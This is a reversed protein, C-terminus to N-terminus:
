KTYQFGMPKDEDSKYVLNEKDLHKLSENTITTLVKINSVGLEETYLAHATIIKDFLKDIFRGNGFNKVNSFSSIIEKVEEKAEKTIKFKSKEVKLMFINFLEEVNYDKFDIFYRIRSKLGSNTEILDKMEKSYGAFIFITDNKEMEKVIEGIAEPGFEQARSALLYAEDVFITGGRVAEIVAKTKIGTQGIYGAILDSATVEKYKNNETYGLTYLLNAIIRAVTTKGTGPNGTYCMHLMPKDLELKGKVKNMFALRAALKKVEEKINAIGILSNLENLIETKDKKELHDVTINGVILPDIYPHDYEDDFDNDIGRNIIVSENEEKEYISFLKDNYIDFFKDIADFDQNDFALKLKNLDTDSITTYMEDENDDYYVFFDYFWNEDAMEKLTYIDAHITRLTNTKEDYSGLVMNMYMSKDYYEIADKKTKCKHLTKLSEISMPYGYCLEESSALFSVDDYPKLKVGNNLTMVDTTYDIEFDDLLQIPRFIYILGEKNYPIKQYLTALMKEM